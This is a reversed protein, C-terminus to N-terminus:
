AEKREKVELVVPEMFESSFDKKGLPVGMSRLIAYAISVHFFVQPVVWGLAYGKVGLTVGETKGMPLEVVREEEGDLDKVEVRELLELTKDIRTLLEEITTENDEWAPFPGKSPVVREVFKKSFNSVMQIQFSLPLMDDHLRASPLSAADVGAYSQAKKLIRKLALLSKTFLDISASHLTIPM